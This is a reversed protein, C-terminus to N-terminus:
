SVLEQTLQNALMNAEEEYATVDANAAGTILGTARIVHLELGYLNMFFQFREVIDLHKEEVDGQSLILVAKKGEPLRSTYPNENEYNVEVHSWTRDLFSKFQGTTDGYYVPSSFVIIDAERMADLVEELDDKLVCKDLKSHCAECGQCGRYNLGNLYYSKISAGNEQSTEVFSQAIRASTGKKRPSGIINIIKM